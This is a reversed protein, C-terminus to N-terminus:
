HKEGTTYKKLKPVLRCCLAAIKPELWTLLTNHLPTAFYCSLAFISLSLAGVVEDTLWHAGSMLRPMTFLLTFCCAIFGYAPSLYFLAFGSCILLVLGHDGPFSDDSFDKCHIEPVLDGLRLAEPFFGTGSPREIPLSKGLQVMVTGLLFALLILAFYRPMNQRDHRLWYVIFLSIM